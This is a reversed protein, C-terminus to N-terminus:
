TFIEVNISDVVVVPKLRERKGTKEAILDIFGFRELLKVDDSVSKFDRDLIKALNYISTPNKLKILHLIRSKENSLLNRLSSLGEFDYDKKEGAFKKFLTKFSGKENVLTIQRTKTKKAM